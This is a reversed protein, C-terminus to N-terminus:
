YQNAEPNNHALKAAGAAALAGVLDDLFTHIQGKHKENLRKLVGPKLKDIYGYNTLGISGYVNLIAVAIIEDIGYLGEDQEIMAQLPGLLQNKEAMIDIQIGTLIANQVERKQVVELITRECEEITLGPLHDKQLYLTLEAIEKLSVGRQAILEMVKQDLGKEM